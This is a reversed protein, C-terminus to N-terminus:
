VPLRQAAQQRVAEFLGALSRTDEEQSIVPSLGFQRWAGNPSQRRATARLSSKRVTGEIRYHDRGRRGMWEGEWVSASGVGEVRRWDVFSTGLVAERFASATQYREGPRRATAKNTIRRLTQPVWYGHEYMRDPLARRGEQLRETVQKYDLDEYRFRGNLMEFLCLGVAYVDGPVGSDGGSAEPPEYLPSRGLSGRALGRDDMVAASGFDTLLARRGSDTLLINAPKVDRHLYGMQEHVYTLASLVDRTLEVAQRHSFPYVAMLADNISGERYYPMYIEVVPIGAEQGLRADFIQAVNPHTIGHLLQPERYAISDELGLTDFRKRVVEEGFVKHYCVDIEAVGRHDISRIVQYTPAALRTM